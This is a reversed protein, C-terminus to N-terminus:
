CMDITGTTGTAHQRPSGGHYSGANAGFIILPAAAHLYKIGFVVSCGGGSYVSHGTARGKGRSQDLSSCRWSNLSSWLSHPTPARRLSKLQVFFGSLLPFLITDLPFLFQHEVILYSIWSFLLLRLSISGHDM